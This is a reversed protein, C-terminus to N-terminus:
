RVGERGRTAYITVNGSRYIVDMHAEFKEEVV